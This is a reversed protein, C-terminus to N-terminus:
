IDKEFVIFDNVASQLKMGFALLIRLSDTSNKNSPVVSGLLKTHGLERAEDIIQGAMKAALGEKRFKPLVFIDMIYTTKTDALHRYTAFGFDLELIQDNTREKLYDAYLSM